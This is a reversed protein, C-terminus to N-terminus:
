NYKQYNSQPFTRMTFLISTFLFRPLEITEAKNPIKFSSSFVAFLNKFNSKVVEGMKWVNKSIIQKKNPNFYEKPGAIINQQKGKGIQRVTVSNIQSTLNKRNIDNM